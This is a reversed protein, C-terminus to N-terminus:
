ESDSATRKWWMFLGGAVFIGGIILHASWVEGPIAEDLARVAAIALLVAAVLGLITCLAGYVIVRTLRELPTTTKSRVSGIIRDISDATQAAWDREVGAQPSAKAAGAKSSFPSAM